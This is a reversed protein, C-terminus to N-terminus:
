EYQEALQMLASCDKILSHGRKALEEIKSLEWITARRTIPSSDTVVVNTAIPHSEKKSNAVGWLAHIIQNRGKEFSKLRQNFRKTEKVLESDTDQSLECALAFLKARKAQNNMRNMLIERRNLNCSPIGAWRGLVHNVWRELTGSVCTLAGIAALQEVTLPLLLAEKYPFESM